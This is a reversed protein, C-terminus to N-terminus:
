AGLVERVRNGLTELTYPKALFAVEAQKIGRRLLADDTYGSTYLVKLDPLVDHVEESLQRGDMGPMVIDTLLLDPKFGGGILQIAEMGSAAAIVNYGQRRLAKEVMRRVSTEDEVVLVTESNAPAAPAEADNLAAAESVCPLYIRFASGHGPQSDVEIYGGNQAVIGHVVSLGMGTGQGVDKTTFFPEFVRSRVEESMGIGTDAVTLRLFPKADPDVEQARFPIEEGTAIFLHGGRPMADRANVALNMLVQVVQGPDIRVTASGAGLNTVLTIDEGLIRRLMKETDAVVADLEIVRPESIERRSFALLQRTLSSAREQAARIESLLDRAQEDDGLTTDLLQAATSIVTLLNNFDHAVGGALEGISQMKQTHRLQAELERRRTIDEAVGAIRIVRGANDKVPFARDHVWRVEGDPRVIRYEEDYEATEQLAIRSEIRARDEPHIASLWQNPEELLSELTRGWVKEYGPSIYMIESKAIDTLWFVEEISEALQRFRRESTRLKDADEHAETVDQVTGYLRASRGETGTEVYGRCVIWRWGRTNHWWRFEHSLLSRERVAKDLAAQAGARDDSHIWRSFDEITGSFTPCGLLEYVQPTWIILGTALDAQWLGMQSAELALSVRRRTEAVDNSSGSAGEGVPPVAFSSSM